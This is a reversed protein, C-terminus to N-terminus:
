KTDILTLIAQYSVYLYCYGLMIFSYDLQKFASRDLRFSVFVNSLHSRSGHYEVRNIYNTLSYKSLKDINYIYSKVNVKRSM